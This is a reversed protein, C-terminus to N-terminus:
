RFLLHKALVLDHTRDGGEGGNKTRPALEDPLAGAHCAPPASNSDRANWWMRRYSWHLATSELDAPQLNLDQGVHWHRHQSGAAMASASREIAPRRGRSSFVPTRNGGRWGTSAANCLPLAQVKSTRPPPGIGEAAVVDDTRLEAQVSCKAQSWPTTPEFGIAYVLPGRGLRSSVPLMSPAAGTLATGIVGRTSSRGFSRARPHLATLAGSTMVSRSPRRSCGPSPLNSEQQCRWTDRWLTVTAHRRAM